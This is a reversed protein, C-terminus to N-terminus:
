EQVEQGWWIKGDILEVWDYNDIIVQNREAVTAAMGLYITAQTQGDKYNFRVQKM